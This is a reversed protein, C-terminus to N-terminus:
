QGTLLQLQVALAQCRIALSVLGLRLSISYNVAEGLLGMQSVVHFPEDELLFVLENGRKAAPIEAERLYLEFRKIWLVYDSQASFRAPPRANVRVRLGLGLGEKRSREQAM